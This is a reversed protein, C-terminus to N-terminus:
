FTQTDPVPLASHHTVQRARYNTGLGSKTGDKGLERCLIRWLTQNPQKSNKSYTKQWRAKTHTTESTQYTRKQKERLEGWPM